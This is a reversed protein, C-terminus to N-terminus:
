GERHSRNSERDSRAHEEKGIALKTEPTLDYEPILLESAQNRFIAYRVHAIGMKETWGDFCGRTHKVKVECPGIVRPDRYRYTYSM